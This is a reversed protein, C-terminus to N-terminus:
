KTLSTQETLFCFNYTSLLYFPFVPSNQLQPINRWSTSMIQAAFFLLNQLLIM